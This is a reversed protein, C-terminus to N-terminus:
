PIQIIEVIGLRGTDFSTSVSATRFLEDKSNEVRQVQGVVLGAPVNPELGSTVVIDGAEIDTEEPIFQMTLSMGLNGNVMGSTRKEGQVMVALRSLDSNVLEVASREPLVKVIKGIVIGANVTVASGYEVGDVSGRDIYVVTPNVADRNIVNAVLHNLSVRKTFNLLQRLQRNEEEVNQLRSVELMLIDNQATLQYQDAGRTAAGYSYIYNLYNFLESNNMLLILIIFM